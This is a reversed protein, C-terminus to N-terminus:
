LSKRCESCHPNNVIIYPPLNSRNLIVHADRVQHQGHHRGTALLARGSNTRKLLRRVSGREATCRCKRAVTALLSCDLNRGGEFSRVRRERTQAITGQVATRTAVAPMMATSAVKSLRVVLVLGLEQFAGRNGLVQPAWGSYAM